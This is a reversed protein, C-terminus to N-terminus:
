SALVDKRMKKLLEKDNMKEFLKSAQNAVDDFADVPKDLWGAALHEGEHVDDCLGTKVAALTLEEIAEGGDKIAGFKLVLDMNAVFLSKSIHIPEVEHGADPLRVFTSDALDTKLM